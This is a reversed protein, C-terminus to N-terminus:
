EEGFCVLLVLFTLSGLNFKDAFVRVHSFLNWGRVGIEIQGINIM